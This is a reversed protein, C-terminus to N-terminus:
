LEMYNNFYILINNLRQKTICYFRNLTITEQALLTYQPQM